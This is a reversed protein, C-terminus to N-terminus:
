ELESILDSANCSFLSQHTERDISDSLPRCSADAFAVIVCSRHYSRPAFYGTWHTVIDPVRSNPTQYGNIMSNIAGCFAWSTGRGRLAPSMGGRWNSFTTWFTDIKANSLVGQTNVYSNWPSGTAAMGQTQQMASNVGSSGNLTMSYPFPPISRGTLSQDWGTSRITEAFVVTHSLGDSARSLPAAAPEYFLGDTEWRFDYNVDRGSGFSAMYNLGGYTFNGKSTTVTTTKSKSDSPCLFVPIQTAFEKVLAPNPIKESFSGTFASKNFQLRSAIPGEDLFPLLRAQVSYDSDLQGGRPLIKYAAEYEALGLALQRINNVCTARRAAERAGNVAPLLLGALVGIISIVVLLEVLTFGPHRDIWKFKRLM